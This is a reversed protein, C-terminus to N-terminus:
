QWNPKCSRDPHQTRQVTLTAANTYAPSVAGVADIECRYQDQNDDAYTLTGTTYSANTAGPVDSWNAGADDLSRGNTHSVLNMTM